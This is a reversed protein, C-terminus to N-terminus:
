KNLQDVFRLEYERNFGGLKIIQYIRVRSLRLYDATEQVSKCLKDKKGFKYVQIPKLKADAMKRRTEIAPSPRTKGKWYAGRKGLKFSKYVNASHSIWQLNSYHNNAKDEDIHDVEFSIDIPLDLYTFAVLRHASINKRKKINTFTLNYIYYKLRSVYPKIWRKTITNFVQGDPTIQYNELGNIKIIRLEM